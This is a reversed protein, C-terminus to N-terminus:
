CVRAERVVPWPALESPPHPLRATLDALPFSHESRWQEWFREPAKPVYTLPERKCALDLEVQVMFTRIFRLVALDMSSGQAAIDFDLCQAIWLGNEKFFLVKLQWTRQM